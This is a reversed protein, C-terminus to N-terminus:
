LGKSSCTYRVLTAFQPPKPKRPLLLLSDSQSVCQDSLSKSDALCRGTKSNVLKFRSEDDEDSVGPPSPEGIAAGGCAGSVGGNNELYSLRKEEIYKPICLQKLKRVTIDRSVRIHQEQGSATLVNLVVEGSNANDEAGGAESSSSTGAVLSSTMSTDSSMIVDNAM